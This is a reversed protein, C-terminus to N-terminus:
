FFADAHLTGTYGTVDIVLDAGAQYGAVGNVDVILFTHGALGTSSSDPTFLLAHNAALQGAGIAITLDGDFSAGTDLIGHTVAPDIGTVLSPDFSGISFQATNFNMGTVKDYTSSTSDSVADFTFIESSASADVTITDQGAGGDIQSDGTGADLIDDGVGGNLQDAGGGAHMVDDGAGGNFEIGVTTEASDNVSLTHGATLQTGDFMMSG